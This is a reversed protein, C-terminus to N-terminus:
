LSPWALTITVGPESDAAAYHKSVALGVVQRDDEIVQGRVLADLSAKALNDIDPKTPAVLAAGSKVVDSCSCTRVHSCTLRKPRPLRVLLAVSVPGTLPADGKSSGWAARLIVAAADEWKATKQPTYIRPYGGRNSVRPRGKAVPPGEITCTWQHTPEHASM